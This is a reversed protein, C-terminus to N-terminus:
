EPALWANAWDGYGVHGTWAGRLRKSAADYSQREHVLLNPLDRAIIEQVQFYYKAREAPNIANQGQESLQDVETNTYGSANGFPQEITSSVFQRVIGLAPDGYTTYGQMNVDFKGEKFVRQATASADLAEIKVNIGVDGWMSKVAQSVAVYPQLASSVVFELTFRTGDAGPKFGAEDLLAKARAPDFPYMKRYDVKPNYVWTIRSDFSSVGVNGLGFWITKLLYERDTAMALAQRVLRNATPGRRVNFFMLDDPPPFLIEHLYLKPNAQIVKYDNFSVFDYSIYHVEGSQLSLVRAAPTPIIKFIIKDIYPKGSDWYNPNKTMIVHSGRALESMIFPGTGMPKTLSAENKFADTGQFVHAPLIAAGGHCGLAYLFPGYPKKLRIVVTRPDPTEITEIVAGVRAFIASHKSSVELLSFKVDASTLPKGDQWKADVLQFTYTMGDPATTWSKALLPDVKGDMRPYILSQYVLCGFISDPSNTTLNPNVMAADNGIAFVVTGGPVPKGEPAQAFVPGWSLVLIAVLLAARLQRTDM